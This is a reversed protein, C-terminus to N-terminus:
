TCAAVSPVPMPEPLPCAVPTAPVPYGVPMPAPMAVPQGPFPPTTSSTAFPVPMPAPMAATRPAPCAQACPVPAGPAPVPMPAALALQPMEHVIVEARISEGDPCKFVLASEKDLAVTRGARYQQKKEGKLDLACDVRVKGDCDSGLRSVLVLGKRPN